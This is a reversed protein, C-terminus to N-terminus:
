LGPMWNLKLVVATRGDPQAKTTLEFTYMDPSRSSGFWLFIQTNPDPSQNSTQWGENHLAAAYFIIVAAANDGTQFSVTKYTQEGKDWVPQDTGQIAVQQAGPYIPPNHSSAPPSSRLTFVAAMAALSSIVILTAVVMGRLNMVCGKGRLSM